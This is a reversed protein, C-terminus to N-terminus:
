ARRHMQRADAFMVFSVRHTFLQTTAIFIYQNFTAHLHVDGARRNLHWGMRLSIYASLVRLRCHPRLLASAGLALLEADAAYLVHLQAQLMHPGATGRVSGARWGALPAQPPRSKLLHLQLLAM